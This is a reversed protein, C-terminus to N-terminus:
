ATGRDGDEIEWLFTSECDLPEYTIVLEQLDVM